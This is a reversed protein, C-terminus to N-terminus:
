KPTLSHITHINGPRYDSTLSLHKRHSVWAGMKITHELDNCSIYYDDFYYPKM